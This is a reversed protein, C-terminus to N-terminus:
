IHSKLEPFRELIKGVYRGDGYRQLYQRGRALAVSIRGDEVASLWMRYVATEANPDGPARRLFTSLAVEAAKYDLAYDM